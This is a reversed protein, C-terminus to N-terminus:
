KGSDWLRVLVCENSVRSHFNQPCGVTPTAEHTTTLSFIVQQEPSSGLRQDDLGCPRMAIKLAHIIQEKLQNTVNEGREPGTGRAVSWVMYKVWAKELIGNLKERSLPFPGRTKNQIETTQSPVKGLVVQCANEIRPPPTLTQSLIIRGAAPRSIIQADRSQM